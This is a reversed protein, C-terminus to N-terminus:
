KENDVNNDSNIKSNNGLNKVIIMTLLININNESRNEVNSSRNYNSNDNLL